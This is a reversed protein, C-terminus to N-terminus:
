LDVVLMRAPVSRTGGLMFRFGVISGFSGYYKKVGPEAQPVPTKEECETNAEDKRTLFSCVGM